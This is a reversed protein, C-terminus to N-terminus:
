WFLHSSPSNPRRLPAKPLAMLEWKSRSTYGGSQNQLPLIERLYSIRESPKLGICMQNEKCPTNEQGTRIFSKELSSIQSNMLGAFSGSSYYGSNNEPTQAYNTRYRDRLHGQGKRKYFNRNLNPSEPSELEENSQYKFCNTQSQGVTEDVDMTLFDSYFPM